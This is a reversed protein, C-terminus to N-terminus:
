ADEVGGDFIDKLSAKVAATSYMWTLRKNAESMRMLLHGHLACGRAARRAIEVLRKTRLYDSTGELQPLPPTRQKM